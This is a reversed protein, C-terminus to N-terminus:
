WCSLWSMLSRTFDFPRLILRLPNYTLLLINYLTYSDTLLEETTKCFTKGHFLTDVSIWSFNRYTTSYLTVQTGVLHKSFHRLSKVPHIRLHIHLYPTLMKTCTSWNITQSSSGHIFHPLLISNSMKFSQLHHPLGKELYKQMFNTDEPSWMNSWLSALLTDLQLDLLLLM